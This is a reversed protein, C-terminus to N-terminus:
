RPGQGQSQGKGLLLLQEALSAEPLNLAYLQVQGALHCAHQQPRQVAGCMRSSRQRVLHGRAGAGGEDDGGDGTSDKHGERREPQALPHFGHRRGEYVM